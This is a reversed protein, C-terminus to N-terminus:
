PRATTHLSRRRFWIILAGAAAIFLSFFAPRCPHMTPFIVIVSEPALRIVDAAVVLSGVLPLLLLWDRRGPLAWALALAVAFSFGYSLVLACGFNTDNASNISGNDVSVAYNLLRVARILPLLWAASVFSILVLRIAVLRTM